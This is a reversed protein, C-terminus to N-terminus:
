KDLPKKCRRFGGLNSCMEKLVKLTRYKKKFCNFYTTCYYEFFCKDCKIIDKM